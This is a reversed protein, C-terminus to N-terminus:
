KWEDLILVTPRRKFMELLIKQGPVETKKEGHAEWLGKGYQGEPHRDFLIDWLFKYNHNHVSEAIVCCDSRLSLTGIESRHLRAAWEDLWLRGEHGNTSLHYLAALLHSKGQGRSGLLVVPRSQGPGTSEITKLLDNSPYTIRLFESASVELAGTKNDNTFDVTTGRLRKGRFEERLRLGLM